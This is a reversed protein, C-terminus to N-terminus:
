HYIVTETQMMRTVLLASCRKTHKNARQIENRALYRNLDKASKNNPQNNESKQM